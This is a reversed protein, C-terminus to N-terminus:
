KATEIEFLRLLRMSWPPADSVTATQTLRVFKATVPAFSITAVGPSGQGEAVPSSWTVGDDSVQVRYGRSHTSIAPGARGGGITSSTFQIETLRAPEPLEVQLWMGPEQPVGTTWGLYSIAGAASVQFNFGGAANASRSVPQGEHSASVTWRDDPALPRPVRRELEEVTWPASRSGAAARARAVDAPTVFGGANGFSNRVFSSVDAIWDDRNTGLPIMVQSYSRGDIPGTLGHLITQVVYDRHGNVRPSGALSPAV